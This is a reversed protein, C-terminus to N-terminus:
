APAANGYTAAFRERLYDAAMIPPYRPLEGDPVCSPIARVMADPNPDLFFAISYRERAPPLVRHPTSVYVDNTPMALEHKAPGTLAFVAHAAEFGDDIDTQAVGHGAIAFFGISRCASGTGGALASRVAREPHELDSIDILADQVTHLRLAGLGVKGVKGPVRAPACARRPGGRRM